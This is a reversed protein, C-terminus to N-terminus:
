QIYKLIISYEDILRDLTYVCNAPSTSPLCIAKFKTKPYCLKNYLEFAKKGTTFIAKIDTSNLIRNIDNPKPNKISSDSSGKIQTEKLVDWLAIHNKLLMDTKKEITDPFEENLISSLVKWFRNQPHTYYFGYKRSAVSPVTGLILVKSDINFVPEYPHRVFGFKSNEM